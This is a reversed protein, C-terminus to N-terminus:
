ESVYQSSQSTGTSLEDGLASTLQSSPLVSGAATAMRGAAGGVAGVAGGVTRGVTALRDAALEVPAKKWWGFYKPWERAIFFLTLPMNFWFSWRVFTIGDADASGLELLDEVQHLSEDLDELHGGLLSGVASNNSILDNSTMGLEFFFVRYCTHRGYTFCSYTCGSYTCSVGLGWLFGRPSMRPTPQPRPQQPPNCGPSCRAVPTALPAHRPARPSAYRAAFLHILVALPMVFVLICKVVAEDSQPAPYLVRLLNTEDIFISITLVLLVVWNLLPIAASAIYCMVVFKTVMQMRDVVYMSAGDGAYFRDMELQTLSGPAFVLRGLRLNLGWGQIVCTIVALDVMMGNVM